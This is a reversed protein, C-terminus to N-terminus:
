LLQYCKRSLQETQYGAHVDLCEILAGFLTNTDLMWVSFRITKLASLLLSTSRRRRMGISRRQKCTGDTHKKIRTCKIAESFRHIKAAKAMRRTNQLKTEPVCTMTNTRVAYSYQESHGAM